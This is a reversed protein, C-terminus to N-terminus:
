CTQGKMVEAVEEESLVDTEGALEGNEGMSHLENEANQQVLGEEASSETCAQRSPDTNILMRLGKRIDSSGILDDGAPVLLPNYQCIAVVHLRVESRSTQDHGVM